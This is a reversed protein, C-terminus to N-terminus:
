PSCEECICKDADTHTNKGYLKTRLHDVDRVLILRANEYRAVTRKLEEIEREQREIRDKLALYLAHSTM